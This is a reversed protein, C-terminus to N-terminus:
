QVNGQRVDELWGHTHLEWSRATFGVRRAAKAVGQCESFFQCFYGSKLPEPTGCYSRTEARGARPERASRRVVPLIVSTGSSVPQVNSDTKRNQQIEHSYQVVLLLRHTIRDVTIDSVKVVLDVHIAHLDRDIRFDVIDPTLHTVEDRPRSRVPLM